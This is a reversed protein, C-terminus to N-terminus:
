GGGTAAAVEFVRPGVFDAGGPGDGALPEAGVSGGPAGPDRGDAGRAGVGVVAQEDAAGAAGAAVAGAAEHGGEGAGLAGEAGGPRHRRHRAWRPLGRGRSAATGARRAVAALALRATHTDGPYAPRHPVHQQVQPQHYM